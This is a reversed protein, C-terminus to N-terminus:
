KTTHDKFFRVILSPAEAPFKHTGPYILSVFPANTKSPYLTGILTGAIGWPRGDADCGNLRRIAEMTRKQNAFPVLEDKEGAVHLAPKPKLDLLNRGAGAASPAVAALLDGRAAWLLYTFGGGNSHGTVYLRKQDVKYERKLTALVEDFFKLDRDKQDGVTKQWGPRTGEPDTMGPTPLGQMYVVIAEPWLRHYAFSRAAAQMTGGHGHFAFVVPTETKTATPPVHLLAKRTIDAIEWQREVLPLSTIRDPLTSQAVGIPVAMAMVLLAFTIERTTM